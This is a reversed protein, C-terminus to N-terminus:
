QSNDNWGKMYKNLVTHTHRIRVEQYNALNIQKLKAAHMGEQVVPMNGMDQDFIPGLAGLEAADSWKENENLLHTPCGAPKPTDKKVRKLIMVDMFCSDPNDGDPLWRYIVNPVFGGWPSFNPFVNYVLADLMELDTAHSYDHGDEIAYNERSIEALIERANGGEPVLIKQDNIIRGSGSVLTDLIQQESVSDPPLYGSQVGMSHIARSANESVIDYQSNADSSFTMIQPHTAISHYAEMFAEMAVKWNCDIRKKVHVIKSCNQLNWREFHNDTEGLYERLSPSNDDMNIFLFGQWTEVKVQPLSMDKNELHCFDWDFPINNLEGDLRWTFGHFPCKIQNSCGNQTKLKRGRHLCSNYFARFQNDEGRVIFFSKLGISYVFHSGIEPIDEERCVMQWVKSWMLEYEKQLFKKSTFVESNIPESGLYKYTDALIGPATRSEQDLLEKVSKETQCRAQGPSLKKNQM